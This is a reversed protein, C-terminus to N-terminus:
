DKAVIKSVVDNIVEVLGFSGIDEVTIKCYM